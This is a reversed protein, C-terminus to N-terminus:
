KAGKQDIRGSCMCRRDPNIYSTIRAKMDDHQWHGPM